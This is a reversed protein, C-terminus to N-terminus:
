LFIKKWRKTLFQNIEFTNGFKILLHYSYDSHHLYVPMKYPIIWFWFIWFYSILCDHFSNQHIIFSHQSCTTELDFLTIRQGVVHGGHWKHVMSRKINVMSGYPRLKFHLLFLFFLLHNGDGPQQFNVYAYGLSRRTILDRCVRISLVPGATSFKEFLMAETIDTHLDGVYLSAMPYNPAGTNMEGIGPVVECLYLDNWISGDVRFYKSNDNCKTKM